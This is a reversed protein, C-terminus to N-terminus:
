GKTDKPYAEPSGTQIDLWYTCLSHDLFPLLNSGARRRRELIREFLIDPAVVDTSRRYETANTAIMIFEHDAMAGRYHAVYWCRECFADTCEDCFVSSKQERCGSCQLFEIGVRHSRADGPFNSRAESYCRECLQQNGDNLSHVALSRECGSCVSQELRQTAHQKRGGTMHVRSFCCECFADRCPICRLKAARDNCDNCFVLENPTELRTHNMCSRLSNELINLPLPVSFKELNPLHHELFRHLSEYVSHVSDSNVENDACTRCLRM